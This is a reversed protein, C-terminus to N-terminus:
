QLFFLFLHPPHRYPITKIIRRLYKNSEGSPFLEGRQKQRCGARWLTPTFLKTEKAQAPTRVEIIWHNEFM